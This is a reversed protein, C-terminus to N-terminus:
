GAAEARKAKEALILTRARNIRSKVTGLPIQCLAAMEPYSKSLSYILLAKNTPKIKAAEWMAEIDSETLNDKAMRPKRPTMAHM